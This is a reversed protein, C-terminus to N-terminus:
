YAQVTRIQNTPQALRRPPTDPVLDTGFLETAGHEAQVAESTWQSVSPHSVVLGILAIAILAPLAVFKIGFRRYIRRDDQPPKDLLGPM